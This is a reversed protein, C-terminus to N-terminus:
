PALKAAEDILRAATEPVAKPSPRPGLSARIEKVTGLKSKQLKQPDTERGFSGDSFRRAETL